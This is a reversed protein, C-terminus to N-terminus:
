KTRLRKYIYIAIILAAAILFFGIVGKIWDLSNKLEVLFVIAVLCLTAVENWIRLGSSKWKFEGKKLSFMMKQCVFHYVLLLLVFALKIHMWRAQEGFFYTDPYLLVMWVGFIITLLMAPTTIIWWLRKEMIEFQESLIRKPEEERKQAETHYIFLRVIYFLGAFWCVVFIIHLAKITDLDM